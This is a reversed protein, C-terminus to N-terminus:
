LKVVNAPNEWDCADDSEEPSSGDDYVIEGWTVLYEEGNLEALAQWQDALYADQQLTYEKNEFNVTNM